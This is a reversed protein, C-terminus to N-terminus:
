RESAFRLVQEVFHKGSEATRRRMRELNLCWCLIPCDLDTRLKIKTGKKGRRGKIIIHLCSLPYSGFIKLQLIRDERWRHAVAEGRESRNM